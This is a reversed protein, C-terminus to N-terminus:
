LFIIFRGSHHGAGLVKIINYTVSFNLSKRQLIRQYLLIGGFVIYLQLVGLCIRIDLYRVPFIRLYYECSRSHRILSFIKSRKRTSGRYIRNKINKVLRETNGGAFLLKRPIYTLFARAQIILYSLAAAQTRSVYTGLFVICQYFAGHINQSTIRRFCFILKVLLHKFKGFRLAKLCRCFATICNLRKVSQM